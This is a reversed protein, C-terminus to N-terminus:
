QHEIIYFEKSRHRACTRALSVVFCLIEAFELSCMITNFNCYTFVRADIDIYLMYAFGRSLKTRYSTLLLLCTRDLAPTYVLRSFTIPFIFFKKLAVSSGRRSDSEM